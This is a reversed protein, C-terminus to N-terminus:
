ENLSNISRRNQSLDTGSFSGKLYDTGIKPLSLKFDSNRLNCLTHCSIFLNQLYYPCAWRPGWVCNVYMAKQKKHRVGLATWYKTTTILLHRTLVFVTLVLFIYTIQKDRKRKNCNCGDFFMTLSYKCISRRFKVSTVAMAVCTRLLFSM